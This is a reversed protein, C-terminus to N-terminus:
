GMEEAPIRESLHELMRGQTIEFDPMLAVGDSTLNVVTDDHLLKEGSSLMGIAARWDNFRIAQIVLKQLQRVNGPWRHSRLRVLHSHSPHTLSGNGERLGFRNLFADVLLGIQELSYHLPPIHISLESLFGM